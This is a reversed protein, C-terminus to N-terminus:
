SSSYPVIKTWGWVWPPFLRFSVHGTCETGPIHDRFYSPSSPLPKQHKQRPQADSHPGRGWRGRPSLLLLFPRWMGTVQNGKWLLRVSNGLGMTTWHVFRNGPVQPLRCEQLLTHFDELINCGAFLVMRKMTSSSAYM